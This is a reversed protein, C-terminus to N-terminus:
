ISLFFSCTTLVVFVRRPFRACFQTMTDGELEHKVVYRNRSPTATSSLTTSMAPAKEACFFAGEISFPRPARWAGAVVDCTRDEHDRGDWGYAFPPAGFLSARRNPCM